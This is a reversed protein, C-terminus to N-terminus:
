AVSPDGTIGPENSQAGSDMPPTGLAVTAGQMFLDNAAPNEHAPRNELARGENPTLLGAQIGRTIGDIRSQFDGRMLGDLNHEVYRAGNLRGFIKLNMQAELATAWQGILHKVLHLDQQEANTFTSRSLDQLFVPPLQYARAVEEVQFRRADTMQGKEPDFGIPKLEHGPPMPFIPKDSTKATDIARSIDAMARRMAEGGQPMPGVLALPPVGGGAFFKSAYDNMSLSLQIAAAAMAIPGYHGLGDAKLMFPVDIVDEAPYRRGGFEYILSMGQRHITASSPDIPWLAELGQPTREIWALGRGGTFVQQWFWARFGFADQGPNPAEHIVTELKGTIRQPGKNSRRYAHLPLAALTRSLFSVAAWVAPVTLASDITVAPLNVTGRGFFALFSEASVPVSANEPSVRTEAARKLEYGFLKM